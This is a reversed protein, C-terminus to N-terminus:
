DLWLHDIPMVHVRDEATYSRAGTHLAIGAIFADGLEGRLARLGNLDKGSVKGGAKVEIALIRGDDFEIVLDVEMGNHTRWHGAGAVGEQWSAQKLVEFVVFTELLHGFQQLSTADRRALKTPNLRLLRTALGSDVVHLKPTAM